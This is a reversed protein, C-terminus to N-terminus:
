SHPGASGDQFTHFLTSVHGHEAKRSSHQVDIALKAGLAEWTASSVCSFYSSRILKLELATKAVHLVTNHTYLYKARGRPLM